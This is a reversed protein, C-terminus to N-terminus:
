TCWCLISFTWFVYSICM